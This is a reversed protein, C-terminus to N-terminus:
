IDSKGMLEDAILAPGVKKDIVDDMSPFDSMHLHSGGHKGFLFLKM